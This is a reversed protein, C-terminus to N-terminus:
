DKRSGVEGTILRAGRSFKVWEWAWEMVVMVRSRAGILYFIHVTAWLLWAVVGGFKFGGIVAVASARGITALLGKDWYVFPKEAGADGGRWGRQARDRIVRAVYRGMQMAAPAIGPVQLSGSAHALSNKGSKGNAIQSKGNGMEVVALDGMVFVEPRGKVTLNGEVLARGSRDTEVGLSSTLGKEAAVGAAWFVCRAEVRETGMMVGQADVETVHKGLVVEVGLRELDKKARAGLEEPLAPLLRADGQVLVIRATTTDISRFDAPIAKRAIEAMAGALEVGTPGGGVIVFTLLARRKAADMEREAAEFALLFRRRIEVADEVTKL